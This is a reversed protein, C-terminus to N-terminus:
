REAAAIESFDAITSFERLLEALLTLRNKRVAEEEAMVLVDDFFRDVVPRLGAIVQLAERYQGARKHEGAARAAKRSEEHLGREAQERFLEPQVAALKWSAEPGAKELIKRIRKFAVALPEFNRTKRIAKVAQLRQEVDVLEDSGAALVANVEDYAYGMRERFLYRVRDLLFEMVKRETEEGAQLKPPHEHLARLSASAAASLSLPLKRELLIRVVGTAARRLAFPDSSGSPILGVAFCGALTDLKDALSVICGTLNRPLEDDAAAPRYHDYVAQAVEEDEGQARAYLGGVIGQLEPFERVMDTVLDCKALEAARDALSVHAQHIGSNFWQEAIWRALWRVREVKDRYSGLRSEYTVHALTGLNDALRCKQDAEWFFRADAFRSRLVREHGLRVQGSRDKDLNIVALFHPALTGDRRQVAFYKQHDRMVTILIEEPLSLYSPDFDGLIVSPFENLYVVSKLLADDAHVGLQRAKTAAALEREIKQRREEPRVLVGNAKLRAAYDKVGQVRVTKKGLFRHGSSVAGARVGGLEFPVAKGGLVAVIWRIPRIFRPGALGVWHMTKPWAIDQIAAPLVERLIEEAARGPIVKRAVLYDGKPTGVIQLKSIPVSAKGAFSEAARTPKGAEDFAVSKPPGTIEKVQDAQRMRLSRVQAVLRRPAGFTDVAAGDLLGNAAFYKELIVKLEDCARPIMGAPIEECGIELLFDASQKKM